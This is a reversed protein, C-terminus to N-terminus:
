PELHCKTGGGATAWTALARLCWSRRQLVPMAQTEFPEFWLAKMAKAAVVDNQGQIVGDLPTIVDLALHM